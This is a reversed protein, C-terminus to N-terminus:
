RFSTRNKLWGISSNCITLKTDAHELIDITTKIRQIQLAMAECKIIPFLPHKKLKTIFNTSDRQITTMARKWEMSFEAITKNSCKFNIWERQERDLTCWLIYQLPADIESNDINLSTYYQVFKDSYSMM